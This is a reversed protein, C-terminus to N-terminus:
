ILCFIMLLFLFKVSLWILHLYEILPSLVRDNSISMSAAYGISGLITGAWFHKEKDAAIEKQSFTVLSTLLCLLLVLQRM